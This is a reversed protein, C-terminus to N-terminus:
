EFTVEIFLVMVQDSKQTPHHDERNSGEKMLPHEVKDLLDDMSFFLEVPGFDNTVVNMILKHYYLFCGRSPIGVLLPRGM